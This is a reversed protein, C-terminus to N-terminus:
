SDLQHVEWNKPHDKARQVFVGIIPTNSPGILSRVVAIAKKIHAKHEADDVSDGACEAHGDIIIGKSGHKNLSILIKKKLSDLFDQSPNNALMGVLGAETITDPFEAGFQERGFRAVVEQCRGDMCGLVTFFTEEQM